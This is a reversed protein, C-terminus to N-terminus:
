KLLFGFPVGLNKIENLNKEYNEPSVCSLM